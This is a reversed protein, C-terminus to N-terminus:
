RWGPGDGEVPRASIPLKVLRCDIPGNFLPIRAAPKLGFSKSLKPSGALIWATWGLWRRRLANGMGHYLGVVWDDDDGLREGYPPNTVLLGPPLDEPPDCERMDCTEVYIPLDLLRANSRARGAARPDNDSAFVFVERQRGANARDTAEELLLRWSQRDHGSWGDFGWRERGLGPAQDLAMAAAELPITGAGCMPDVLPRGAAAAEPWGALHLLTAALTEKLPAEGARRGGGGREHLPSGALDIGVTARDNRLHVNVRLDPRDLDISPRSNRADRIRDVIADKTRQAGFKSNRLTESTGVFDVALTRGERLHEQWPIRRVGAYLADDDRADFIDLILIVRSSLRSWLAVRYGDPLEGEFGIAGRFTRAIGRGTISTIEAALVDEAGRTCTAVFRHPLPPAM